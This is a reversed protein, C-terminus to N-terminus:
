NNNNSNSIINILHLVLVKVAFPMKTCFSTVLRLRSYLLTFKKVYIVLYSQSPLEFKKLFKLRIYVMIMIGFYSYSISITYFRAFYTWCSVSCKLWWWMVKTIAWEELHKHSPFGTKHTIRCALRVSMFGGVRRNCTEQITFEPQLLDVEGLNTPGFALQAAKSCM